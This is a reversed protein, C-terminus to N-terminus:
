RQMDGTLSILLRAVQVFHDPYRRSRMSVNLLFVALKLVIRLQPTRISVGLGTSVVIKFHHYPSSYMYLHFICHFM